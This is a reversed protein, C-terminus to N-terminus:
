PDADLVSTRHVRRAMLEPYFKEEGMVNRILTDFGSPRVTAVDTLFAM